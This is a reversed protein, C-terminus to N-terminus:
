QREAAAYKVAFDKLGRSRLGIAEAERMARDKEWGDLKVRKIFWMAGVRNASECHIYVPQNDSDSVTELFTETIAATPTRFPLHFYKLGAAEAADKGAEVTAGREGATRLNIVSVFGRRKTAAM